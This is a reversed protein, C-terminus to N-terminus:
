YQGINLSLCHDYSNMLPTNTTLLKRWSSYKKQDEQNRIKILIQLPFTFEMTRGNRKLKLYVLLLEKLQDNEELRM